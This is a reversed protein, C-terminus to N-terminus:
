MTKISGDPISPSLPFMVHSAFDGQETTAVSFNLSKVSGKTTPFKWNACPEDCGVVVEEEAGVVDVLEGVEVGVEVVELDVVEVDVVEVDVVEDVEVVEVVEVDVGDDVDLVEVGEDVDVVERGVGDEVDEAVAPIVPAASRLVVVILQEL